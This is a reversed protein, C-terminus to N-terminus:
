EEIYNNLLETFFTNIRNDFNDRGFQKSMKYAEGSFRSILGPNRMLLSSYSLREFSSTIRFGCKNHDVIERQGGGDFVVPVLRNQMAEVITMGFHEVRAPDNQGLGCIHWFLKAREYLAKLEDGPINIKLEINPLNVKELLAEIKKLYSNGTHSGGVLVLKWERATDPHIRTLKDFVRIMELQKKTGGEEFRAVSLIINEKKKEGDYIEMDVPPYIHQHPAFKWKHKIWSATYKSNYIIYTYQDAYFYVKPRREPFHVIMASIGSLPYVMELMSNNIFLDYKASELSILHFPNKMKETVRIPDIHATKLKEYFPIKIVKIQCGSLDLNYWELINQRTVEKNSLITIDFRDQLISAVTLGYKQGGGILHLCHDYIALTPKRLGLGLEIKKVLNLAAQVGFKKSVMGATRNLLSDFHRGKKEKISLLGTYALRIIDERPLDEEFKNLIQPLKEPNQKIEEKRNNM